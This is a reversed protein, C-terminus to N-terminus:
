GYHQQFLLVIMWTKKGWIEIKWMITKRKKFVIHCCKNSREEDEGEFLHYAEIQIGNCYILFQKSKKKKNIMKQKENIENTHNIMEKKFYETKKEKREMNDCIM